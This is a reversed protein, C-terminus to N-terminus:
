MPTRGAMEGISENDGVSIIRGDRIALGDVISFEDDVTLIRGSILITDPADAATADPAGGSTTALDNCAALIFAAAVLGAFLRKVNM